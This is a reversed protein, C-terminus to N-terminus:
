RAGLDLNDLSRGNRLADKAAEAEKRREAVTRCDRTTLNSGVSRVKRCIVKNDADTAAITESAHREQTTQHAPAEQTTPTTPTTATTPATTTAQALALSVVATAILSFTM